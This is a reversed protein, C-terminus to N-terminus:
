VVSRSGKRRQRLRPRLRSARRPAERSVDLPPREVGFVQRGINAAVVDLFYLTLEYRQQGVSSTHLGNEILRIGNANSRAAPMATGM